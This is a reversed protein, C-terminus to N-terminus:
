FFLFKKSHKGLSRINEAFEAINANAAGRRAEAIARRNEAKRHAKAIENQMKEFAMARKEELKRQLFYVTRPLFKSM